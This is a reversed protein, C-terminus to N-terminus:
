NKCINADEKHSITTPLMGECNDGVNMWVGLECKRDIEDRQDSYKMCEFGGSECYAIYRCMRSGGDIKCVLTAHKIDFM